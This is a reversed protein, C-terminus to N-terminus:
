PHEYEIGRLHEPIPSEPPLDIRGDATLLPKALDLYHLFAYRVRGSEAGTEREDYAVQWNNRPQELLQTVEGFDFEDANGEIELEVLHVREGAAVPHVGVVRARNWM